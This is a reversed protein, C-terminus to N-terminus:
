STPSKLPYFLAESLFIGPITLLGTSIYSFIVIESELQDLIFAIWEFIKSLILRNGILRHLTFEDM